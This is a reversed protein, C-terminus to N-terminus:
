VLKMETQSQADTDTTPPPVEDDDVRNKWDGEHIGSDIQGELLKGFRLFLYPRRL